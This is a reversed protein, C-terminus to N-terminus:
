VANNTLTVANWSYVCICVLYMISLKLTFIGGKRLSNLVVRTPRSIKSTSIGLDEAKLKKWSKACKSSGSLSDLAAYGGGGFSISFDM